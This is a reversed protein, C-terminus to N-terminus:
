SEILCTFPINSGNGEISGDTPPYQDAGEIGWHLSSPGMSGIEASNILQDRRLLEIRKTVLRM